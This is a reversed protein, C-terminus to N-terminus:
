LLYFKIAMMATRGFRIRPRCCRKEGCIPAYIKKTQCFMVSQLLFYGKEVANLNRKLSINAFPCFLDLLKKYLCGGIPAERWHVAPSCTANIFFDENLDFSM